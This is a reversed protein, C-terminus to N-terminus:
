RRREPRLEIAYQHRGYWLCDARPWTAVQQARYSRVRYRLRRQRSAFLVQADAQHSRLSALTERETRRVSASKLRKAPAWFRLTGTLGHTTSCHRSRPESAGSRTPNPFRHRGQIRPRNTGPGYRTNPCSTKTGAGQGFAKTEITTKDWRLRRAMSSLGDLAWARVYMKEM